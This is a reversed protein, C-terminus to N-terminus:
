LFCFHELKRTNRLKVPRAGVKNFEGAFYRSKYLVVPTEIGPANEPHGWIIGHDLCWYTFIFHSSPCSGLSYKIWFRRRRKINRSWVKRRFQKGERQNGHCWEQTSKYNAEWNRPHKQKTEKIIEREENCFKLTATGCAGACCVKSKM